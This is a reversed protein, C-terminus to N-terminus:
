ARGRDFIADFSRQNDPGFAALRVTRHSAADVLLREGDGTEVLTLPATPDANDRARINAVSRIILRPFLEENAPALVVQRGDARTAVVPGHLSQVYRFSASRAPALAGEHTVGWQLTRAAAVAVIAFLIMAITLYIVPRPVVIEDDRVIDALASM